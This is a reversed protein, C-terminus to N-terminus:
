ELEGESTVGIFRYIEFFAVSKRFCVGDPQVIKPNKAAALKGLSGKPLLSYESEYVLIMNESRIKEEAVIVLLISM